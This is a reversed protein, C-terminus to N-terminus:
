TPKEFGTLVMEILVDTYDDWNEAVHEDGLLRLMLIGFLPAAFVRAIIAPDKDEYPTDVLFKSLLTEAMKFAPAYLEDYLEAALKPNVLTESIMVKSAPIDAAIEEMRHRTYMTVFQRLSFDALADFHLDRIEAATVRKIIGKLIAEKNKFYNYVTGDAIGARRAIQKITTREYGNEAIVETAADLIFERKADALPKQFPNSM